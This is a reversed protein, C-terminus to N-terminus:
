FLNSPLFTLVRSPAEVKKAEEKKGEEEAPEAIEKRLQWSIGDSWVRTCLM